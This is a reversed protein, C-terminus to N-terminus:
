RGLGLKCTEAAGKSQGTFFALIADVATDPRDFVWRVTSCIGGPICVDGDYVHWQGAEGHVWLGPGQTAYMPGDYTRRLRAGMDTDASVQRVGAPPVAVDAAWLENGSLLLGDARAKYVKHGGPCYSDSPFRESILLGAAALRELHPRDLSM